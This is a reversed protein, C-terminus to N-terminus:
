VHERFREFFPEGPHLWIAHNGNEPRFLTLRTTRNAPYQELAPWLPDMAGRKLPRVSFNEEMDGEIGIDILPAAEEIFRRIYGPLLRRFQEHEIEERLSPLLREVDGGEGYIKKERDEIARIQEKTLTGELREAISDANDVVAQILFEKLSVGE